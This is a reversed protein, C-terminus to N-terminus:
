KTLVVKIEKNYSNGSVSKVKLQLLYIGSKLQQGNDNTGNWNISHKGANNFSNQLKIIENGSLDYMIIKTIGSEPVTYNIQTSTTFPNPSAQLEADTAFVVSNTGKKLVHVYNGRLDGGFIETLEIDSINAGKFKFLEGIGEEIERESLSFLIGIIEDEVIAYAFEFGQALSFIKLNEILLLKQSGVGSERSRVKLKFQLAAVNGKSEFGLKTDDFYYYATENSIEPLPQTTSSKKGNILQVLGIIDLVNIENDYNVDAADFLFPSPNQNLMYSVITTIDLVNVALDGNADGNAADFPTATIKKSNDNEQLDTGVIRYIYHYTTDPIVNYDTYLTDCILEQNIRTTDSITSDTLNYMRYMNYGLLDETNAPPWELDVKGIGPTASFDISLSGAAQIVFKFRYKEPPIEFGETDRANRVHVTNIGDGTEPEFTYYASWITSATSWQASDSVIRQFYPVSVGFGVLPHYATDMPRNFFVDFKVTESGIPDLTEDFPNIGNLEVKWVMGHASDPPITLYPTYNAIPLNNYEWFDYLIREIENTRTSGWYQNSITLEDEMGDTQIAGNSCGIFTNGTSTWNTNFKGLGGWVGIFNNFNMGTNSINDGGSMSNYFNNFEAVAVNRIVGGNANKVINNRFIDINNALSTNDFVCNEVIIESYYNKGNVPSWIFSFNCYSFESKGSSSSHSFGSGKNSEDKSHIWIISDNTGNAIIKGRVEINLGPYVQIETGPEIYLTVGSGIRYSNNILYLYESHLTDDVLVIGSLEVGREINIVLNNKITDNGNKCGIEYEFVIDRNHAVNSDIKIEIPLLESTLTAWTSIDGVYSTSDTIVATITDEFEVFRIKAWVSDAYGAVNKITFHIQITEGADARGDRDCGLLTDTLTYEIFRLDPGISDLNLTLTNYANVFDNESGFILKAWLIDTYLTDNHNKALACIGSVLPAAMSTGNYVRYGNPITSIINVGPASVEYNGPTDTFDIPGSLDTNSFGGECQVGLVFLYAAPYMNGCPIGDNCICLGDNGAAAVLLSNVYANELANKVTLSVGYSGLSMNIVTAGNDSAYEIANAFDSSNGTGSSQLMKVPMIQANWAVGCMGIENNGEAAAIGAVHTGHSNDDNPDNDDNIYDWGRTDDIYGNNDDDIGNNPIENWNTWINDDLDPHDWDVGTDIIAIIQTTDGTVSDWAAPANIADLYWQSGDQYLPDDPYTERNGKNSPLPTFKPPTDPIIGSEMVENNYVLYNPEAFEINEDKKLEEIIKKADWITDFKLKYINFLSPVEIENGKFDRITRTSKRSRQERTEKFVKDISEIQYPELVMDVSSLGIKAVGNKFSSGVKVEDKFKILVEGKVYEPNYPDLYHINHFNSQSLLISQSFIALVLVLQKLM